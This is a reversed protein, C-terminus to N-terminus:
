AAIVSRRQRPRCIHQSRPHLCSLVIQAMADPMKWIQTLVRMYLFLERARQTRVPALHAGLQQVAIANEHRFHTLAMSLSHSSAAELCKMSALQHMAESIDNGGLYRQENMTSLVGAHIALIARRSRMAQLPGTEHTDPSSLLLADASDVDLFAQCRSTSRSGVSSTLASIALDVLNKESVPYGCESSAKMLRQAATRAEASTAAIELVYQLVPIPDAKMSSTLLLTLCSRKGAVAADAAGADLAPQSPSRSAELVAKLLLTHGTRAARRIAADVSYQSVKCGSHQLLLAMVAPSETVEMAADGNVQTDIDGDLLAEAINLHANAAAAELSRRITTACVSPQHQPMYGDACQKWMPALRHTYQQLAYVAEDTLRQVLWHIQIVSMMVALNGESWLQCGTLGFWRLPTASTFASLSVAAISDAFESSCSRKLCLITSATVMVGDLVGFCLVSYSFYFAYMPLSVKDASLQCRYQALLYVVSYISHIRSLTRSSHVLFAGIKPLFSAMIVTLTLMALLSGVVASSSRRRQKHHRIQAANTRASRSMGDPLAAVMLMHPLMLLSSPSALWFIFPMTTALLMCLDSALSSGSISSWALLGLAGSIHM